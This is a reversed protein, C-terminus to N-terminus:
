EEESDLYMTKSPKAAIPKTLMMGSLHIDISDAEGKINLKIFVRSGASITDLFIEDNRFLLKPEVNTITWAKGEPAELRVAAVSWENESPMIGLMLPIEGDSSLRKDLKWLAIDIGSTLHRLEPTGWTQLADEWDLSSMTRLARSLDAEIDEGKDLRESLWALRNKKSAFEEAFLRDNKVQLYFVIFPVIMLAGMLWYFVNAASKVEESAPFWPEEGEDIVATSVRIKWEVPQIEESISDSGNIHQIRIFHTGRGVELTARIDNMSYTKTLSDIEQWTNQDIDWITVQLDYIDGEVTVDVLHISENWGTTEVRLVDRYDNMELTLEGTHLSGDMPILPYTSNNSTSSLPRLSPADGGWGADYHEHQSMSAHWECNCDWEFEIYESETISNIRDGISANLWDSSYTESYVFRYKMNQAEMLDNVSNTILMSEFTPLIYKFNMKGIGSISDINKLIILEDKEYLKTNLGWVTDLAPSTVTIIIRGDNEIPIIADHESNISSNRNLEISNQVLEESTNNQFHFKVEIAASSAILETVLIQGSTVNIGFVDAPDNVLNGSTDVGECNSSTGNLNCIEHDLMKFGANIASGPPPRTNSLEATVPIIGQCNDIESINLFYNGAELNEYIESSNNIEFGTSNTLIVNSNECDFWIIGDGVEIEANYNGASALPIIFAVLCVALAKKGM